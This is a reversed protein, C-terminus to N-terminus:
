CCGSPWERCCRYPSLADTALDINGLIAMLINNFDHAIGGAMVGLSELKQAHMIRAELRLREAEARKRESIDTFSEILYEEDELMVRAVSKLIPVGNGDADLAARESSDVEEGLDLVPCKGACAPCVFEHCIQGIVDERSRGFLELAAQNAEIIRKDRSVMLIGFPSREILNRFRENARKREEVEKALEDRSVTTTQLDGAMRNFSDALDGIEDDTRRRLRQSFDGKAIRGLTAAVQGVPKVVMRNFALSLVISLLVCGALSVLAMRQVLGAVEQRGATEARVIAANILADSRALAENLGARSLGVEVTGYTTGYEDACPRKVLLLDADTAPAKQLTLLKGETDSVAAYVVEDDLRAQSVYSEVRAFDFAKIANPALEAIFGALGAGKSELNRRLLRATERKENLLMGRTQAVDHRVHERQAVVVSVAFGIMVTATIALTIAVFKFTLRRQQM